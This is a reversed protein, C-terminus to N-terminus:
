VLPCPLQFCPPLVFSACPWCLCLCLWTSLCLVLLSVNFMSLVSLAALTSGQCYGGGLPHRRADLGTWPPPSVVPFCPPILQAPPHPALSPFGSYAPFVPTPAPITPFRDPFNNQAPWPPAQKHFGSSGLLASPPIPPIPINSSARKSFYTRKVPPSKPSPRTDQSFKPKGESAVPVTEASDSVGELVAPVPVPTLDSIGVQAVPVLAPALDSIGELAVPIPDEPISEQVPVLVSESVPEPASAPISELASEPSPEQAPPTKPVPQSASEPGSQFLAFEPCSQTSASEPVSKHVEPNQSLVSAPAVGLRLKPAPAPAQVSSHEPISIREPSSELVPAKERSQDELVVPHAVVMIPDEPVVSSLPVQSRGEQVPPDPVEPLLSNSLGIHGRRKKHKLPSLTAHDAAEPIVTVNEISEPIVSSLKVLAPIIQTSEVSEPIVRTSQVSVPIVPISKVPELIVPAPEPASEVPQRVPAPEPASATPQRVPSSKVPEPIVPAPQEFSVEMAMVSAAPLKLDELILAHHTESCLARARRARARRGRRRRPCSTTPDGVEQTVQDSMFVPNDLSSMVSELKVHVSVPVFTSQSLERQSVKLEVMESSNTSELTVSTPETSESAPALVSSSEPGPAPVSTESASAVVRAARKRRNRRKENPTLLHDHVQSQPLLANHDSCVDAPPNLIQWDKRHHVYNSFDWFNLGQLQEMEWRPLPDDLSLNFAEKLTADDYELGKAMTWFFQAFSRPERDQQRLSAVARQLVLRGEATAPPAIRYSM